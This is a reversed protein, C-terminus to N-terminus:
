RSAHGAQWQRLEKEYEVPQLWQSLFQELLVDAKANGEGSIPTSIRLFQKPGILPRRALFSEWVREWFRRDSARLTTGTEDAAAHLAHKMGVSLNHDLRYPLAQGGVLGTFYVLERQSSYSFVRREFVLSIGHIILHKFDPQVPEMRWGSETWCRDPTHVFLGIENGSELYRKASFVRVSEGAAGSFEANLLVDAVLTSEASKGVPIEHFNWGALNTQGTLWFHGARTDSQTYWVAPFQWLVLVLASLLVTTWMAGRLNAQSSPLSTGRDQNTM